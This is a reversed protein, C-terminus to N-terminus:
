HVFPKVGLKRRSYPFVWELGDTEQSAIWDITPKIGGFISKLMGDLM